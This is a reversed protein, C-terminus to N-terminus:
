FSSTASFPKQKKRCHAGFFKAEKGTEDTVTVVGPKLAAIVPVHDPLIGFEGTTSPVNV